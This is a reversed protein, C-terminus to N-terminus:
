EKLPEAPPVNLGQLITQLATAGRRLVDPSPLPVHLMPQASRAGNTEVSPAAKMVAALAELFAVGAQMLASGADLGAPMPTPLLAQPLPEPAPPQEGFLQRVTELFTQRGLNEFLVEDNTGAFLSEFLNRKQTLTRLVREEITDRTVLNFVQVPQHQGLRHVRAIRQDLVAPNWPM